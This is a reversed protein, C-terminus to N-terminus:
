LKFTFLLNIFARTQDETIEVNASDGYIIKNNTLETQVIDAKQAAEMISDGFVSIECEYRNLSDKSFRSIRRVMFVLFDGQTEGDALGPFINYGTINSSSPFEATITANNNLEDAIFKLANYM